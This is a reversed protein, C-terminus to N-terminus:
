EYMCCVNMCVLVYVHTCLLPSLHRHKNWAPVARPAPPLACPSARVEKYETKAQESYGQEKNMRATRIRAAESRHHGAPETHIGAHLHLTLSHCSSAPQSVPNHRRESPIKGLLASNSTPAHTPHRSSRPSVQAASHLAFRHESACGFVAILGKDLLQYGCPCIWICFIYDITSTREYRVKLAGRM